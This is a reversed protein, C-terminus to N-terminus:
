EEVFILISDRTGYYRGSPEVRLDLWNPSGLQGLKRTKLVMVKQVNLLLYYLGKFGCNWRVRKYARMM